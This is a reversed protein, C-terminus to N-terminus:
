LFNAHEVPQRLEHIVRNLADARCLPVCQTVDLDVLVQRKRAGYWIEGLSLRRLNGLYAWEQGRLHCCLPVNGDAQIVVVVEAGYCTAYPRPRGFQEYKWATSLVRFTEHEHQRAEELEKGVDVLRWHFPRVQLYDAGTTAMWAATPAIGSLNREDALYGVGLTCPSGLAARTKGLRYIADRVSRYHIGSMGHTQLYQEETGADLSVRIWKCLPLLAEITSQLLRGGNTILAVELGITRAYTIVEVAAPHCLPEGGGTFIVSRCGIARLQGLYDIAEEPALREANARGGACLPCRHNCANTLDMEATIPACAEGGCLAAMRQPHAFIKTPAFPSTM